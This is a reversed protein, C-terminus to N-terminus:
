TVTSAASDSASFILSAASLATAITLISPFCFRFASELERAYDMRQKEFLRTVACTQPVPVADEARSVALRRHVQHPQVGLVEPIVIRVLRRQEDCPHVLLGAPHANVTRPPVPVDVHLVPEM